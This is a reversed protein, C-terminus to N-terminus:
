CCFFGPEWLVADLRRRCMRVKPNSVSPNVQACNKLPAASPARAVSSSSRQAM